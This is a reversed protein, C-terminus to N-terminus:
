SQLIRVPVNWKVPSSLVRMVISTVDLELEGVEAVRFDVRMYVLLRLLGKIIGIANTIM